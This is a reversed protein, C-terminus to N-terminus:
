IFKFIKIVWFFHMKNDDAIHIYVLCKKDNSKVTKRIKVM